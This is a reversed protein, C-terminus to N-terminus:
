TQIWIMQVYDLAGLSSGVGRWTPQWRLDLLGLDFPRGQHCPLSSFDFLFFALIPHGSYDLGCMWKLCAQCNCYPCVDM